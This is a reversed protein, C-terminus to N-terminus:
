DPGPALLWCRAFNIELTYRDQISLAPGSLVRTIIAATDQRRLSVQSRAPHSQPSNDTNCTTVLTVTLVCWWPACWPNSPCVTQGPAGSGIDGGREYKGWCSHWSVRWRWWVTLCQMMCRGPPSVRSKLSTQQNVASAICLIFDTVWQVLLSWSMSIINHQQMSFIFTLINQALLQYLIGNSKIDTFLLLLKQRIILESSTDVTCMSFLCSLCLRLSKDTWNFICKELNASEHRRKFETWTTIYDPFDCTVWWIVHVNSLQITIIPHNDRGLLWYSIIVWSM